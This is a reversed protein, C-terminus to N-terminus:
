RGRGTITITISRNGSRVERDKWAGRDSRDRVATNSGVFRDFSSPISRYEKLGYSGM